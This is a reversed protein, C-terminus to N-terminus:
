TDASASPASTSIWKVTKLRDDWDAVDTSPQDYVIRVVHCKVEHQTLTLPKDVNLAATMDKSCAARLHGVRPSFKVPSDDPWVFRVTSETHNTMTFSLTRCEGICLDGFRMVDLKSAVCCIFRYNYKSVSVVTALTFGTVARTSPHGTEM